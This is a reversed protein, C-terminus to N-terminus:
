VVSKRDEQIFIGLDVVEELKKPNNKTINIPSNSVIKQIKSGQFWDTFFYTAGALVGLVILIILLIKKM